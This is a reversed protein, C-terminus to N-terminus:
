DFDIKKDERDEPFINKSIVILVSASSQGKFNTTQHKSVTFYVFWVPANMDFPLIDTIQMRQEYIMITVM